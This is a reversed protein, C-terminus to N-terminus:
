RLGSSSGKTNYWLWPRCIVKGCTKWVTIYSLDFTLILQNTILAVLFLMVCYSLYKWFFANLAHQCSFCCLSSYFYFYIIGDLATVLLSKDSKISWHLPWFTRDIAWHRVNPHVRLKWRKDSAHNGIRQLWILIGLATWIYNMVILLNESWSICFASTVRM